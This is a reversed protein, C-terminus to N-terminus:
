CKLSEPECFASKCLRSTDCTRGNELNQGLNEIPECSKETFKKYIQSDKKTQSPM